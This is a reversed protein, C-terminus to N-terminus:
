KSEETTKTTKPTLEAKKTKCFDLIDPAKQLEIPLKKFEALLSETNISQGLKEKAETQTMPKPAFEKTMENVYKSDDYLGMFVDSNFGLTSLGKTIADTQGKKAYEDDVMLYGKGAQTVYSVKVNSAIPFKGKKEKYIYWMTAQYTGIKTENSFDLYSWKEDEVGWGIGYPGFKETANKRQYQPAIATIRMKGIEAKKTHQPDTKEVSNWLALNDTQSKNM